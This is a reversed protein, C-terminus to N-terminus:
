EDLTTKPHYGDYDAMEEYVLMTLMGGPYMGHNTVRSTDHDHLTWYGPNYGEIIIDATKGPGVSITNIQRPNGLVNGDEAVQWFQHGHLHM